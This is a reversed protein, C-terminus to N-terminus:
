ASSHPSNGARVLPDCEYRTADQSKSLKVGPLEWLQKHDVYTAAADERLAYLDFNIQSDCSTVKLARTALQM